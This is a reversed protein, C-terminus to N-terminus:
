FLPHINEYKNQEEDENELEKGMRYKIDYNIIFDLEENTFGFHKALNTDIEDIIPKSFLPYFADFETKINQSVRQYLKSNKKLNTMLNNKLSIFEKKADVKMKDLDIPMRFIDKQSLDRCNSYQWNFWYFLSSNLLCIIVAADEKSNLYLHKLHSSQQQKGAISFYPIFDFIKGWHVPANHYYVISGSKSVYNNLPKFKDLKLLIDKEFTLSIKSNNPIAQSVDAYKPFKSFLDDRENSFWKNFNTSFYKTENKKELTREKSVQHEQFLKTVKTEIKKRTNYDPIIGDAQPHCLLIKFGSKEGVAELSFTLSDVVIPQKTKDNNWGMDNFLERFNFHKIYNSFEQKTLSM